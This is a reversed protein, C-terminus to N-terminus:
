EAEAVNEDLEERIVVNHDMYNKMKADKFNRGWFSDRVGGLEGSVLYADQLFVVPVVPMDALLQAEAEHLAALEDKSNEAAYAREIIENYKESQYGTVHGIKDYNEALMDVGNGSFETAFPALVSFANPALANYNILIVDFDGEDYAIQFTDDYVKTQNEAATAQKKAELANVKVKFGLSGWVEAIAEAVALNEASNRVTIQFSGSTVGAKKLLSKAEEVNASAAILKDGKDAVERFDGKGNADDIGFPVFGTAPKAFVLKEAIAERDIALSLARRVDADKFLKTTTNFYLSTTVASDKVEAKKAYDARASLAIQGLYFISESEFKELQAAEDGYRYLVVLRYPIVYKDLAQNSDTDRFYYASRELTLQEGYQLKRADFPGNTVMSSARKAWDPNNNVCDERLPVLAVSACTKFFEDLDIDRIFEIELIYTDVSYIGLDDITADGMKIERANKLDMLMASAECKFTPEMIRQWAYVFDNAQVTRGDSWKTERLDIQLRYTGGEEEPEIYKYSKMMAKSWDGDEDLVTLGEFMLSILQATATDTYGVAPDLDYVEDGLYMTIYAGKDDKALTSCSVLSTAVVIVALIFSFLKKM